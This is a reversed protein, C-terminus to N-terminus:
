AGCFEMCYVVELLTLVDERELATQPLLLLMQFEVQISWIQLRMSM